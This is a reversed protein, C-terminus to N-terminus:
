FLLNAAAAGKVAVVAEASAFLAAQAALSLRWPEAREFGRAACLAFIEAENALQRSAGEPRAVFLRRRPAPDPAPAFAARLAALAEPHRFLPTRGIPWLLRLAACHWLESEPHALVPVGPALRALTEHAIAALGEPLDADVIVSAGDLLGRAAALALAAAADLLWHGFNRTFPRKLLLAPAAIERRPRDAIWLAGAADRVLGAPDRGQAFAEWCSEEIIAGAETVVTGAGLLWADAIEAMVLEPYEERCRGLGAVAHARAAPDLATSDVLLPPMRRYAGAPAVVRRAADALNARHLALADPPRRFLREPAPGGPAAGPALLCCEPRPLLTRPDIVIAAPAAQDPGDRDSLRIGSAAQHRVFRWDGFGWGAGAAIETPEAAEIARLGAETPALRLFGPALGLPALAARAALWYILHQATFIATGDLDLVLDTADPEPEPAEPGLVAIRANPLIAAALGALGAPTAETTRLELDLARVPLAALGSAVLPLRALGASGSPAVIRCLLRLREARRRAADLLAERIARPRDAM